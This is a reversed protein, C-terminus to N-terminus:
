SVVRVRGHTVANDWGFWAMSTSQPTAAFSPRGSEAVVEVVRAKFGNHTMATVEYMVQTHHVGKRGDETYKRDDTEVFRDGVDPDTGQRTTRLTDFM